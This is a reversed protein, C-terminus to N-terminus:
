ELKRKSTLVDVRERVKELLVKEELSLPSTRSTELGVLWAEMLKRAQRGVEAEEDQTGYVQLHNSAWPVVQLTSGPVSTGFVEVCRGDSSLSVRIEGSATAFRVTDHVSLAQVEGGDSGHVAIKPM